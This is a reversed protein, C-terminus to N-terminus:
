GRVAAVKKGTKQAVYALFEDVNDYNMTLAHDALANILDRIRAIEEHSRGCGLCHTGGETCADRGACPVFKM